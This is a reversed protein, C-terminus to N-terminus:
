RGARAAASTPLPAGELFPAPDLPEGDVRVEFHLHPGTSYGTSGVVGIAQGRLVTDGPKVGVAAQHAYLTTLRLGGVKGHDIVTMNGYAINYETFLVVGDDAAYVIGDGAGLDTGTHVKVYNLIPHLRPGYPSTVPGTGPLVFEGTGKPPDASRANRAALDNIRAGLAGSQAILVQYQRRDEIAAKRAAEFAAQRARVVANVQEEAAKAMMAKTSMAVLAAAAAARKLEEQQRAAALRDQANLLDARAAALEAIVANGASGISQLFAIREALQNPNTSSLVIAWEGMSGNSQYATRALRGLDTLRAAIRSEVGVLDRAAREEALVAADLDTQAQADVARAREFESQATALAQRAVVLDSKAKALAKSAAALEAAEHAEQAAHEAALEAAKAEAEARAEAARREAAKRREEAERRAEAKRRAEQKAERKAKAAARREAKTPGDPASASASPTPAPTATADQAAAPLGPGVLGALV